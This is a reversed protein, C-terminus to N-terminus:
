PQVEDRIPTPDSKETRPRRPRPSFSGPADSARKRMERLREREAPGVAKTWVTIGDLERGRMACRGAESRAMFMPRGSADRADIPDLCTRTGDRHSGARHADFARDGSFHSGCACCHSVCASM